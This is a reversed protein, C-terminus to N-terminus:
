KKKDLEANVKGACVPCYTSTPMLKVKKFMYEEVSMWNGHGKEQGDDDRIKKCNCCVALMNEYMKLQNKMAAMKLCKEVRQSMEADECPKLLYDDAHLRLADIASSLDGYGTLVIVTTDPSINKTERLVDIGGLSGMVLDTLVLDFKKKKILEIAEEASAALTINRDKSALSLSIAKRINDDDDVVLLENKMM